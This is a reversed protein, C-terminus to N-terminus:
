PIMILSIIEGSASSVSVTSVTSVVSAFTSYNVFAYCCIPRYSVLDVALIPSHGVCPTVTQLKIIFM